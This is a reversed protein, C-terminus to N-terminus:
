IGLYKKWFDYSTLEKIRVRWELSVADMKKMILKETKKCEFWCKLTMKRSKKYVACTNNKPNFLILKWARYPDAESIDCTRVVRIKNCPLLFNLLKRLRKKWVSDIKEPATVNHRVVDSAPVWPTNYKLVRKNTAVPDLKMFSDIGKLYEKIGDCAALTRNYDYVFINKRFTRLWEVAYEKLDVGGLQSLAILKNRMDYYVISAGRMNTAFPHWLCIGNVNIVKFHNRVGYEADDMHIFLPLPLNYLDIKSLPMCCYCWANFNNEQEYSNVIINRLLSLNLNKNKFVFKGGELRAGNEFQRIKDELVLMAGGIMADSYGDKLYKLFIYNRELVNPDLLTDDDMFVIHTYGKDIQRKKAEILCRTFGGSGGLNRNKFVSVAGRNLVRVPLTRGNDAIIIDLKSYLCSKENELITKKIRDINSFVFSERKYTCIGLVMKVDKLDSESTDDFYEASEILTTASLSKIRFYVLETNIEPFEFEFTKFAKAEAVAAPKNDFKRRIVKEKDIYVGCLYVECKGKLRLRLKLSKLVTYKKWKILSFSNFYTDTDFFGGKAIEIGKEGLSIGDGRFYMEKNNCIAESPLLLKQLIM